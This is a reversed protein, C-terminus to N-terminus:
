VASEDGPARDRGAKLAKVWWMLEGLQRGIDGKTYEPKVAGQEDFAQWYESINVTTLISMVGLYNMIFALNYTSYYGGVTGYAVFAAAKRQWEVPSLYDLFNKLSGPMSHNYEGLVFVYGDAERIPKALDKQQQTYKDEREASLPGVPENFVSLNFDAIDFLEFETEPAAKKAQDLYWDAVKRGIRNERVTSIIVLVKPKM